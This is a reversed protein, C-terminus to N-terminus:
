PATDQYPYDIRFHAGVSECRNLAAQSVLHGVQVLNMVELLGMLDHPTRVACESTKIRELQELATRLGTASRVVYLHQGTIAWLAQRLESVPAAEGSPSALFSRLRDTVQMVTRGDPEKIGAKRAWEAAAWGTRRGFVIIDTLANGGRRNAGHIGGAVEGAAFLGPVDSAGYENIQVGGMVHHALPAVHLPREWYPFGRFLKEVFFRLTRNEALHEPQISSFDMLVAEQDGRSEHIELGIARAALDRMYLNVQWGRDFGQRAMEAQLFQEGQTNTLPCFDIWQVPIFTRPLGEEVIGLPYMQVFEMDILHVGARHALAYGDGTIRSPNDNRQYLAGAGGTALVIAGAQYRFLEGRGVDFGVAGVVQGDGDTLLEVIMVGEHVRVGIKRAYHSLRDTISAGGRLPPNFPGTHAGTRRLQLQVGFRQLETVAERGEHCLIRVLKEDNLHRGTEMTARFHEEETMDGGGAFAFGGGAYMTCTAYGLPSKSVLLVDADCERAAIAARLGAGGSGIVLVDSELVTM